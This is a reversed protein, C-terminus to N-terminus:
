ARRRGRGKKATHKAADREIEKLPINRPTSATAGTMAAIEEKTPLPTATDSEPTVEPTVEVAGGRAYGLIRALRGTIQAFLLAVEPLLEDAGGQIVVREIENQVLRLAKLIESPERAVIPTDATTARPVDDIGSASAVGFEKPDRDYRAALALLAATPAKRIGKEWRYLTMPDVGVGGAVTPRSLKKAKRAKELAAGIQSASLAM